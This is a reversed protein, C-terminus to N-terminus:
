SCCFFSLELNERFSLQLDDCLHAITPHHLDAHNIIVTCGDLYAAHPNSAYLTDPDTIPKGAQFFLPPSSGRTSYKRRCHHLLDAVGDWGIDFRDDSGSRETNRTTIIQTDRFIAPQNQYIHNFFYQESSTSRQESKGKGLGLECASSAIARFAASM